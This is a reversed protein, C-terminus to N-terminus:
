VSPILRLWLSAPEQSLCQDTNLEACVLRFHVVDLHDPNCAAAAASGAFEKRGDCLAAYFIDCLASRLVCYQLVTSDDPRHFGPLVSCTGTAALSDRRLTSFM